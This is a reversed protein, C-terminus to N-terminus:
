YDTTGLRLTGYRRDTNILNPSGRLSPTGGGSARNCKSASCRSLPPPGPRLNSTTPPSGAKSSLKQHPVHGNSNRRNSVAFRVNDNSPM